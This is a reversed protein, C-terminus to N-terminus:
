RNKEEANEKHARAIQEDLERVRQEPDEPRNEIYRGGSPDLARQYLSAAVAESASAIEYARSEVWNSWEYGWGADILYDEFGVQVGDIFLEIDTGGDPDREGVVEVRPEPIASVPTPDHSGRGLGLHENLDGLRLTYRGRNDLGWGLVAAPLHAVAVNLEAASSGGAMQPEGAVSVSLVARCHEIMWDRVVAVAAREIRSGIGERRALLAVLREHAAGSGAGAM